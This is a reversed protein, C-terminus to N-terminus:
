LKPKPRFEFPRLAFEFIDNRLLAEFFGLKHAFVRTSTRDSRQRFILFVAFWNM